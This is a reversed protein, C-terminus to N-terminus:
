GDQQGVKLGFEGVLFKGFPMLFARKESFRKEPPASSCTGRAREMKGLHRSLIELSNRCTNGGVASGAM